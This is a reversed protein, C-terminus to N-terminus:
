TNFERKILLLILLFLYSFFFLLQVNPPLALWIQIILTNWINYYQTDNLKICSFHVNYTDPMNPSLFTYLSKIVLVIIPPSCEKFICSLYNSLKCKAIFNQSKIISCFFYCNEQFIRFILKM